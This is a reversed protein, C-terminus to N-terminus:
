KRFRDVGSESIPSRGFHAAGITGVRWRIWCGSSTRRAAAGPLEFCCSAAPRQFTRVFRWSALDKDFTVLVRSEAVARALIDADAAGRMSEKVSLCDHGAERLRVVVSRALNEDTLLRM